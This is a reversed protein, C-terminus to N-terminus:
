KILEIDSTSDKISGVKIQYYIETAHFPVYRDMAGTVKLKNGVKLLEGYVANHNISDVRIDLKTSKDGVINCVVTFVGDKGPEKIEKVELNATVFSGMYDEFNENGKIQYPKVENNSSIVKFPTEGYMSTRIDTLQPVGEYTSSKCYFDIEDGRHIMSGVGDYGGFAYISRTPDGFAGKEELYFNNGDKVTVVGRIHLLRGNNYTDFDKLLESITIDTVTGSTDTSTDEEGYIRRGSAEANEAAKRFASLYKSSTDNNQNRTYANEILLLNLCYFDSHNKDKIWVLGMYRQGSSDMIDSSEDRELVIKEAGQLINKTFTSAARGWPEIKITSEPTNIGFYRVKFATGNESFISTDGDIPKVLEVEGVGDKLFSKGEYSSELATAYTIETIVHDESPGCSTFTVLALLFVLLIKIKKMM